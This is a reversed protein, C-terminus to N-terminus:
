CERSRASWEVAHAVVARVARHIRGCKEALAGPRGTRLPLAGLKALSEAAQVRLSSHEDVLAHRILAVSARRQAETEAAQAMVRWEGIQASPNEKAVLMAFFKAVPNTCGHQILAEAAHIRVWNTNAQMEKELLRILPQRQVTVPEAAAYAFTATMLCTALSELTLFRAKNTSRQM